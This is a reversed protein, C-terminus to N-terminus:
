KKKYIMMGTKSKKAVYTKGKYTFSKAGSKRAKNMLNTFEELDNANQFIEYVNFWKWKNTEYDQICLAPFDDHLGLGIPQTKTTTQTAM